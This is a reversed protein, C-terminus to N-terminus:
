CIIYFVIATATFLGVETFLVVVVSGEATFLALWSYLSGVWTSVWTCQRGRREIFLSIENEQLFYVSICYCITVECKMGTERM